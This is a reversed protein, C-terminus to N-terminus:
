VLAIARNLNYCIAFTFCQGEVRELGRYPTRGLRMHQKGTGFPGEVAARISSVAKNFWVQWGKLPKNKGAKHMLQDKIGLGTLYARNAASGYAKDGYAAAEDGSILPAFVQSDHLDAGSTFLKRILVSGQDVGIHLKYGFWSKGNKKTFSAGPDLASVEGEDKSPRSVQAEIITADVLTGQKIMLGRAELQRTIEEFLAEYLGLERLQKRFRVFTTEDPTEEGAPIGCFRQFSGRDYLEDELRPDSLGHWGALLLAKFLCLPPYGEAGDRASNIRALIRDVPRWDILANMRDLRKLRKRERRTGSLLVEAFSRQSYDRRAM